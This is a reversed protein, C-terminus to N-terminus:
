EDDEEGLYEDDGGNFSDSIIEGNEQLRGQCFAAAFFLLGMANTTNDFQSYVEPEGDEDLAFLLFAGRSCEDIQKLLAEPFEFPKKAPM